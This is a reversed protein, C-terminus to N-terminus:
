ASVEETAVHGTAAHPGRPPDTLADAWRNAQGRDAVTWRPTTM